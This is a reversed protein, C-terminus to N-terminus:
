LKVIKETVVRDGSSLQLIYSGAKINSIDITHVITGKNLVSQYVVIGVPSVIRLTANSQLQTYALSVISRAPTPFLKLSFSNENSNKLSIVNSYNGIGNKEKTFLRYYNITGPNADVFSYQAKSHNLADITALPAFGQGDNSKEITYSIIDVENATQWTLTNTGKAAIGEFSVLKVPLSGAEPAFAVGRFSQNTGATAIVLSDATFPNSFSPVTDNVWGTTDTFRVVQSSGKVNVTGRTVFLNITHGTATGIVGQYLSASSDYGNTQVWKGNSQKCFKILGNGTLHSSATNAVYMVDYGPITDNLDFLYFQEPTPLTATITDGQANSSLNSLNSINSVTNGAPPATTPLLPKTVSTKGTDTVVTGNVSALVIYNVSYSSFYLQGSFINVSNCVPAKYNVIAPLANQSGFPVYGIGGWAGVAWFGSGDSTAVCRPSVNFPATAPFTTSVDVGGDIGIRAISRPVATNKTPSATGSDAAYGVLTLYRGDASRNLLGETAATGTITVPIGSTSFRPLNITQVLQGAPTYEDLVVPFASSYKNLVRSVVINGKTFPVQAHLVSVFLVFCLFNLLVYKM